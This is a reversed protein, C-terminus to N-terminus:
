CFFNRFWYVKQTPDFQGM